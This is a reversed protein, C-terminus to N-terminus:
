ELMKIEALLKEEKETLDKTDLLDPRRELTRKLSERLRWQEIKAHDGSLLVDPVSLGNFTRPRTYHPHEILGDSFSDTVASVGNGLVGPLLRVISDIMVMSALEGGTLVYDGISLEDTVVAERIREDFGEYHGCLFILHEEEALAVATEQDFRKGQPTMMIVRPVTSNDKKLHEIASFIPQPMLVMGAGGGFPYDDVKSHKNEAFDRFNTLGFTVAGKEQAKKMISANLVNTFMEPFLSLVDIKM